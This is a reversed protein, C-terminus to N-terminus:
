LTKELVVFGDGDRSKGYGLKDYLRLAAVNDPKVNLVVKWGGFEDRLKSELMTGMRFGMGRNHWDPHVAFGLEMTKDTKNMDYVQCYGAREGDVKFVYIRRHLPVNARLWGKHIGLNLPPEGFLFRCVGPHSRTEYMFAIDDDSIPDLSYM